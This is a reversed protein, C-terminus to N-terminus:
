LRQLPPQNTISESPLAAARVRITRAQACAVHDRSRSDARSRVTARNGVGVKQVYPHMPGYRGFLACARLGDASMLVGWKSLDVEVDRVARV